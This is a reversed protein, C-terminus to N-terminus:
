ARRPTGTSRPPVAGPDVFGHMGASGRPKTMSPQQEAAPHRGLPAGRARRACPPVARLTARLIRALESFACPRADLSGRLAIAYECPLIGPSRAVPPTSEKPSKEKCLCLFTVRAGAPRTSARSELFLSRSLVPNRSEGSHRARSLVSVRFKMPLDALSNSRPFDCLLGSAANMRRFAVSRRALAGTRRLRVSGHYRASTWGPICCYNGFDSVYTRYARSL